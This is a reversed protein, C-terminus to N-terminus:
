GIVSIDKCQLVEMPNSTKRMGSPNKESYMGWNFGLKHDTKITFTHQNYCLEPTIHEEVKKVLLNYKEITDIKDVPVQILVSDHVQGLIEIDFGDTGTLTKDNYIKVLGTNIVDAVTSQPIMSFASKWLDNGVQETFEVVRHFCNELFRSRQLHLKISEHWIPIGPYSNYYLKVQRQAEKLPIQNQLSYTNATEGYNLSHNAKKGAQRLSMNEPWPNKKGAVQLALALEPHNMRKAYIEAANTSTGIEKDDLEVLDIPVNYMLHATNSHIPINTEIAQIMQPDNAVYAVVVWEAQSKDFEIFVKGPDSILFKKFEQPLNQMNMGTQFITASSSLRGFKTGRLSYSCRLRNDSDFTAELYTSKLKSLGRISRILSAERFGKRTTTERALAQLALDDLYVKGDKTFPKVGKEIYFYKQCQAPSNPNLDKGCLSNLEKQLKHIEETIEQKTEELAALNVAIGRTQMYLLPELYSITLDYTNLWRSQDIKSLVNAIKLTNVADLSNYVLDTETLM